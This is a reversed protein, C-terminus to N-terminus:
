IRFLEVKSLKDKSTNYEIKNVRYEQGKIVIKFGFSFERIDRATLHIKLTYLFSDQNDYRERIYEFYHKNFLTNTPVANDITYDNVSSFLLTSTTSTEALPESDYVSGSSYQSHTLVENPANYVTLESDWLTLNVPLSYSTTNRYFLRPKSKYPEITGDELKGLHLTYGIPYESMDDTYQIYAPAFVELQLDVDTSGDPNILVNLDGYKTGNQEEYNKLYYDDDDEAFKFSIQKISKLPEIKADLIDVKKTWDISGYLEVFDDYPEIKLIRVRDTPEVILNFLKFCDKLIDVLKIDKNYEGLLDSPTMIDNRSINLFGYPAAVPNSYTVAQQAINYTIAGEARLKFTVSAGASVTIFGTWSRGVYQPAAAVGSIWQTSLTYNGDPLVNDGSVSAVLSVQSSFNTVNTKLVGTFSVALNYDTAATFVGTTLNYENDTDLVETDCKITYATANTNGVTDGVNSIGTAAVPELIESNYYQQNVGSMYYIRKFEDTNFFSSDYDYDAHKFISDILKKLKITIPYNYLHRANIDNGYSSEIIEDNYVLPYFIDTTREGTTIINPAAAMDDTYIGNAYDWSFVINDYNVNPNTSGTSVDFNFKYKSHKIGDIDLDAVTDNGLIDFLNSTDDYIVVNYYYEEGKKDVSIFDIFGDILIVGDVELYGKLNLNPNFNVTYRDVDKFHEFFANNNKTAPLKFDKSYSSNKAGAEKIDDVSYTININEDQLIDLRKAVTDNQPIAYLKIM